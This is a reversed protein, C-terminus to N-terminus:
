LDDDGNPCGESTYHRCDNVYECKGCASHQIDWELTHSEIYRDRYYSM